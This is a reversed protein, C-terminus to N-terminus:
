TIMRPHDTSSASGPSSAAGTFPYLDMREVDVKSFLGFEIHEDSLVPDTEVQPHCGYTVVFVDKHTFRQCHLESDLIPGATVALRTEEEIERVVCSEPSEGREIRGGPLDWEDRHNRLLVVLGRIVVVGKISIPFTSSADGIHSTSM